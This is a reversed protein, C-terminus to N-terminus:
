TVSPRSNTCTSLDRLRRKWTPKCRACTSTRFKLNSRTCKCSMCCARHRCAIASPRCGGSDAESPVVAKSSADDSWTKAPHQLYAAIRAPMEEPPVVIDALGAEIAGRPMSDSSASTPEQVVVLGGKDKIARLGLVGDFGMGSLIVGVAKGHQDDALTRLFFDIPLRLGRAEAPELLHLAGHLLSMDKGPPIVYVCNPTTMLGERAETVVMRTMRQLLEPLASPQVPALHQVVVFAMGCNVPVHSFFSELAELGGASCGIGVVPFHVPTSGISTARTASDTAKARGRRQTAKKDSAKM